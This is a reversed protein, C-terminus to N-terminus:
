RPSPRALFLVTKVSRHYWTDHTVLILNLLGQVVMGCAGLGVGGSKADRVGCRTMEGRYRL